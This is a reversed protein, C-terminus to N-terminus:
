FWELLQIRKEITPHTECLTALLKRIGQKPPKHEIFLQAISEQEIHLVSNQSIKRLASALAKPDKTLTAAGADAMFERKRSIAFRMLTSICYGIIAPILMFIAAVTTDIGKKRSYYRDDGSLFFNLVRSIRLIWEILLEFIGVFVISIILVRVDNNRIHTLEHAIVGKLERDDLTDIIGRTLTVTYSNPNIGSAFANLAPDEIVHVAPMRMGCSICLNDVLNYVRKNDRRELARAGTISDIIEVNV